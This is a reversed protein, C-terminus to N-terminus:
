DLSADPADADEQTRALKIESVLCSGDSGEGSTRIVRVDQMQLQRWLSSLREGVLVIQWDFLEIVIREDQLIAQRFSSYPFMTATRAIEVTLTPVGVETEFCEDHHDTM